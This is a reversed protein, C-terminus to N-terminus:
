AETIAEVRITGTPCSKTSPGGHHEATVPSSQQFTSLTCYENCYWPPDRELWCGSDGETPSGQQSHLTMSQLSSGPYSLPAMTSVAYPVGLLSTDCGPDTINSYTSGEMFQHHFHPQCEEEEVVACEILTDIQLTEETNLMDTNKQTVVWSKFDGQCDRYLTDFYPAPTPIFASQRWKFPAYCSLLVFLVMVFLPILMKVLGSVFSNSPLDNVASETEWYVESSWDSWEGKYNGQNPSSRVRATYKTDPVFHQDDVSYNKGDTNIEHSLVHKDGRKYYHLQYKLNNLLNSYQGVEEYTNRWTFHHQSSNHTVTLCCPANPKINTVPFYKYDLKECMESGDTKNHCLSIEFSVVDDFPESYHDDDDDPMPNSTNVSCFYDGNTNTLMCVFKNEPSYVDTFTLWYCSKSDSCNESPAISLSCKITFLYDNVCHFDRDVSASVYGTIRNGHLCVINTSGFLFVILLMPKLRLLSCDMVGSPGSMM